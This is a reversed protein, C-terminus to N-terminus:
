RYKRKKTKTTQRKNYEQYTMDAAGTLSSMSTSKVQVLEDLEPLQDQRTIESETSLLILKLLEKQEQTTKFHLDAEEMGDLHTIVKFAYGQDVLFQQRKQSFFM